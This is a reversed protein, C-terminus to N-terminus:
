TNNNDPGEIPRTDVNFFGHGKAYEMALFQIFAEPTYFCVSSGLVSEGELVKRSAKEDALNKEDIEIAFGPNRPIGTIEVSKDAHYVGGKPNRSSHAEREKAIEIVARERWTLILNIGLNEPYRQTKEDFGVRIRIHGVPQNPNSQDYDADIVKTFAPKVGEKILSPDFITTIGTRSVLKTEMPIFKEWMGRLANDLTPLNAIYMLGIWRPDAEIAEKRALEAAIQNLRREEDTKQEAEQETIRKQKEAALQQQAKEVEANFSM